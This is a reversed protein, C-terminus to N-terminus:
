VEHMQHSAYVTDYEEPNEEELIPLLSKGTLKVQSCDLTVVYM